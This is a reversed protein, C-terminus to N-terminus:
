PSISTKYCYDGIAAYVETERLELLTMQGTLEQNIQGDSKVFLIDPGADFNLGIYNPDSTVLFSIMNSWNAGVEADGIQRSAYCSSLDVEFSNGARVVNKAACAAPVKFADNINEATVSSSSFLSRIQGYNRPYDKVDFFAHALAGVDACGTDDQSKCVESCLKAAEISQPGSPRRAPSAKSSTEQGTGTANVLELSDSDLSNGIDSASQNKGRHWRLVSGFCDRASEGDKVYCDYTLLKENNM